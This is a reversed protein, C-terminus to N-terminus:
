KHLDRRTELETFNKTLVKNLKISSFNNSELNKSYNIDLM